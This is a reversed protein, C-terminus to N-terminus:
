WREQMLDRQLEDKQIESSLVFNCILNYSRYSMEFWVVCYVVRVTRVMIRCIGRIKNALGGVKRNNMAMEAPASASAYAPPVFSLTTTTTTSSSTGLATGVTAASVVGAVVRSIFSRRRCSTVDSPSLNEEELESSPPPIEAESITMYRENEPSNSTSLYSKQRIRQQGHLTMLTRRPMMMIMHNAEGVGNTVKSSLTSSTFGNSMSVLQSLSTLLLVIRLANMNTKHSTTCTSTNIMAM